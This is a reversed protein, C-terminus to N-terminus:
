EKRRSAKGTSRTYRPQLQSLEPNLAVTTPSTVALILFIVGETTFGTTALMVEDLGGESSLLQVVQDSILSTTSYTFNIFAFDASFSL